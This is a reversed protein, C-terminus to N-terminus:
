SKRQMHTQCMKAHSRWEFNVHMGIFLGSREGGEICFSIELCALRSTLNSAHEPLVHICMCIDFASQRGCSLSPTFLSPYINAQTFSHSAHEINVHTHTHTHAILSCMRSCEPQSSTSLGIGCMLRNGNWAMGSHQWVGNARAYKYARTPTRHPHTHRHIRTCIIITSNTLPTCYDANGVTQEAFSHFIGSPITLNEYTM